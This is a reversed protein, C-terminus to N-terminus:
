AMWSLRSKRHLHASSKTFQFALVVACCTSHIKLGKGKPQRQGKESLVKQEATKAACAKLPEEGMHQRFHTVTRNECGELRLRLDRIQTLYRKCTLEDQEGSQIFFVTCVENIRFSPYLLSTLELWTYFISYVM